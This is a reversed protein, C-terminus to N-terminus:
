TKNRFNIEMYITISKGFIHFFNISKEKFFEEVAGILYEKDGFQKTELEKEPPYTVILKFTSPTFYLSHFTIITRNAVKFDQFSFM